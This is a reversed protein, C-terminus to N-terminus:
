SNDCVEIDLNIWRASFTYGAALENVTITLVYEGLNIQETEGEFYM